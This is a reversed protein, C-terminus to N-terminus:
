TELKERLKDRRKQGIEQKSMQKPGSLKHCPPFTTVPRLGNAFAVQGYGHPESHHARESFARDLRDWAMDFKSGTTRLLPSVKFATVFHRFPAPFAAVPIRKHPQNKTAISTCPPCDVFLCLGKYIARM